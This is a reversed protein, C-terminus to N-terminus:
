KPLSWGDYSAGLHITKLGVILTSSNCLYQGGSPFNYYTLNCTTQSCCALFVLELLFEAQALGDVFQYRRQRHVLIPFSSSHDM